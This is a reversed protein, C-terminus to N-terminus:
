GPDEGHYETMLRRMRALTRDGGRLAVFSATLCAICLPLVVRVLVKTGQPDVIADVATILGTLALTGSCCFSLTRYRDLRRRLPEWLEEPVPRPERAPDM